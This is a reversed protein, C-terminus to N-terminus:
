DHKALNDNAIAANYGTLRSFYQKHPNYWVRGNPKIRVVLSCTPHCLVTTTRLTHCLDLFFQYDM